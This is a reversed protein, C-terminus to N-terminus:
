QIILEGSYREFSFFHRPALKPRDLTLRDSHLRSVSLHPKPDFKVISTSSVDVHPCALFLARVELEISSFRGHRLELAQM